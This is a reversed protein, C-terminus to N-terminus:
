GQNVFGPTRVDAKQSQLFIIPIYVLSFPCSPNVDELGIRLQFDFLIIAPLYWRSALISQFNDTILGNCNIRSSKYTVQYSIQEKRKGLDYGGPFKLGGKTFYESTNFDEVDSFSVFSVYKVSVKVTPQIM